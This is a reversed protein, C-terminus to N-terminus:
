DHSNLTNCLKSYVKEFRKAIQSNNFKDIVVERAMDVMASTAQEEELVYIIAKVFLMEDNHAILMGTKKHKVVESIGGVNYAVVPCRAYMAELVVGPLGEVHSPLLFAKCNQMIEIVDTRVGLFYVNASIGLDKSFLQLEPEMKGKGIILLQAAPISMLLWKFIRLLGKQNKEPVMSAVNLLLPGKSSIHHLDKPFSRTPKCDIGIEITTIKESRYNFTQILDESCNKSVSIIHHVKSLLFKNFWFKPRNTIFESMKNANRYVIPAKWGFILKSFVAFKLTDGANAQVVDPNFTAIHQALAKWGAADVFRMNLPRNLRIHDGEFPLSAEGKMLSVLHVELGAQMLQNSLQSAFMEAGRLQPKQILQLIKL